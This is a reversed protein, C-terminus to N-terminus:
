VQLFDPDLAIEWEVGFTQDPMGGGELPKPALRTWLVIGDPFPEGSAVGLTFPYDSLEGAKSFNSLSGLLGVGSLTFATKQLFTRRDIKGQQIISDIYEPEKKSKM